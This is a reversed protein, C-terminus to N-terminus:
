VGDDGGGLPWVQRSGDTTFVFRAYEGECDTDIHAIGINKEENLIIKTDTEEVGTTNAAAYRAAALVEDIEEPLDDTDIDDQM